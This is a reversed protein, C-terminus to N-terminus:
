VDDRCWVPDWDWRHLTHVTRFEGAHDSRLVFLATHGTAHYYEWEFTYLATGIFRSWAKMRCAATSTLRENVRGSITMETLPAKARAM